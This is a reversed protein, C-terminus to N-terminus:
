KSGDKKKPFLENFSWMWCGLSGLFTFSSALKILGGLHVSGATVDILRKIVIGTLALFNVIRKCGSKNQVALSTASYLSLFTLGAIEASVCGIFPIRGGYQLEISFALCAAITTFSSFVQNSWLIYKPSNRLSFGSLIPVLPLIAVSAVPLAGSKSNSSTILWATAALNAMSLSSLDSQTLIEDSTPLFASVALTITQLLAIVPWILFVFSAPTVLTPFLQAFLENTTSGVQQTLACPLSSQSTCLPGMNMSAMSVIAFYSLTAAAPLHNAVRIIRNLIKSDLVQLKSEMNKGFKTVPCKSAEGKSVAAKLRIQKSAGGVPVLFANSLIPKLVCILLIIFAHSRM